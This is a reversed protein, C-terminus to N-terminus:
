RYPRGYGTVTARTTGVVPTAPTLRPATDPVREDGGPGQRSRSRRGPGLRVRVREHGVRPAHLRAGLQGVLHRGLDATQEAAHSRRARRDVRRLLTHQVRRLTDPSASPESNRNMPLKAIMAPIMSSTTMKAISASSRFASSPISRAIPIVRLRRTRLKMMSPVSYARTAEKIPMTTPRPTPRATTTTAARIKLRAGAPSPPSVRANWTERIVSTFPNAIPNRIAKAVTTIVLTRILRMLMMAAIRSRGISPPLRRRAAIPRDGGRDSAATNRASDTEARAFLWGTAVYRNGEIAITSSQGSTIRTAEGRHTYVPAAASIRIQVSSALTTRGPM